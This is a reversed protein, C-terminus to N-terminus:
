GKHPPQRKLNQHATTVKVPVKRLSGHPHFGEHDLQKNDGKHVVGKALAKRRAANRAERRKVQEPTEEWSTEKKYNRAM